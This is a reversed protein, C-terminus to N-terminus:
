LYFVITFNKVVVLSHDYKGSNMNPMTSWKNPLVDYSEVSNLYNRNNSYGGSVVIREDYVVCAAISRAENIKAVEKWSYDITDFQLCSSTKVGDKNGAIVLIKDMFACVCFARRDDYMEAAKSWTKCTISYKKISKIWGRNKNRGGFVYIKGKIYVAKHDYRRTKMSPYIEVDGVKNVDICSVNSSTMYTKLNYGGCVLLKFYKQSCYRTTHRNSSSRYFCNKNRDLIENLIKVYGYGKTLTSDNM